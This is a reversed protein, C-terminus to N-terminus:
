GPSCSQLTQRAERTSKACISNRHSSPPQAFHSLVVVSFASHSNSSKGERHQRRKRQQCANLFRDLDFTPLKRARRTPRPADAFVQANGVSRRRDAVQAPTRRLRDLRPGAYAGGIAERRRADLPGRRRVVPRPIAPEDNGALVAKVQVDPSRRRRCGLPKGHHDPDVPAAPDRAGRRLGDIVAVRDGLSAHNHHAHIVPEADQSPHRVRLEGFLRLM